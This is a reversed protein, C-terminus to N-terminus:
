VPAHAAEFLHRLEHGGEVSVGVRVGRVPGFSDARRGLM